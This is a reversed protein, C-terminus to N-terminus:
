NSFWADLVLHSIVGVGFFLADFWAAQTHTPFAITLGIGVCCSIAVAFWINHSLGRHRMLMPFLAAAVFFPSWALKGAMLAIGYGVALALYFINQGRSKIDIDPFLAGLLACSLWEFSTLLTPNLSDLAFRLAGFALLGGVSHGRYGPM